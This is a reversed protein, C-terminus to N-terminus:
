RHSGNNVHSSYVLIRNRFSSMIPLETSHNPFLLKDATFSETEVLNKKRKKKKSERISFEEIIINVINMEKHVM